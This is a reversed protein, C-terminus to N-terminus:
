AERMVQHQVEIGNTENVTFSDTDDKVEAYTRTYTSTGGFEPSSKTDFAVTGSSFTYNAAGTNSPSSTTGGATINSYVVHATGRSPQPDVKTVYNAAQKATATATVTQSVTDGGVDSPNIVSCIGTGTVTMSTTENSITSEKSSATLKGNSTDLKWLGTNTASWTRKYTYGNCSGAALTSGSSFTVTGAAGSLTPTVSGGGAAVKTGYSFTATTGSMSAMKNLNQTCTATIANTASKNGASDYSSTPTWTCTRTCTVTGSTRAPGTTTGRSTATLKGDSAVATFGNQSKALSYTHTDSLTGYTTDPKTTSTSGSSFKYTLTGANHTPSASTAGAGINNYSLTHGSITLETVYNGNQKIVQSLTISKGNKTETKTSNGADTVNSITTGKSGKEVVSGTVQWEVKTAETAGSAKYYQTLKWTAYSSGGKAPINPASVLTASIESIYQVDKLQILRSSEYTSSESGEVFMLGNGNAAITKSSVTDFNGKSVCMEDKADTIYGASTGAVLNALDDLDKFIAIKESM